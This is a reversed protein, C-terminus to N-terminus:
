AALFRVTNHLSSFLVSSNSSSHWSLRCTNPQAVWFGEASKKRPLLLPIKTKPLGQGHHKVARAAHSPPQICCLQPLPQFPLSRLAAGQDTLWAAPPHISGQSHIHEQRMENPFCNPIQSSSYVVPLALLRCKCDEPVTKLLPESSLNPLVVSGEEGRNKLHFYSRDYLSRWPDTNM